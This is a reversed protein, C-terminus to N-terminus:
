SDLQHIIQQWLQRHIKVSAEPQLTIEIIDVRKRKLSETLAQNLQRRNSVAYHKLSYLQAAHKFDLDTSTLWYPEFDCLNQQPLYSFIGGGNNNLIIVTGNYGDLSLERLKLLGNMDHYFTLDGLMAIAPRSQDHAMHGAFSSLNGDIGSAGRNCVLEINKHGHDHGTVFSNIDRIPMSNGSFLLCDDPCQNLLEHCILAEDLDTLQQIHSAIVQQCIDDMIRLQQLLKGSTNKNVRTVLQQCIDSANAQVIQLCTHVPDLNQGHAEVLICDCHQQSLYDALSKSIPFTGFRLIWDPRLRQVKQSRFISDCNYILPKKDHPGFRLRSLPDALVPTRIQDALLMISAAFDQAYHDRGCIILGDGQKILNLLSEIDHRQTAERSPTQPHQTQSEIIEQTIPLLQEDTSHGDSTEPLLPEAFPLNLHVPGPLPHYSKQVASDSLLRISEPDSDLTNVPQFYRVHHGFMQQQNITQNAGCNQLEQPRDASLLILSTKSYSAEIVAPYWNAVATGSTCILLVPRTSQQALGLAFFGACREDIHVHTKISPHKVCALTIPTSRSGPSIVAHRVGQQALEHIFQMSWQFNQRGMNM